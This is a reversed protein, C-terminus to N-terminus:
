IKSVKWAGGSVGTESEPFKVLEFIEKDTVTIIVTAQINGGSQISLEKALKPTVRIRAGDKAPGQIYRLTIPSSIHDIIAMSSIINIKDFIGTSVGDEDVDTIQHIIPENSRVGGADGSADNRSGRTSDISINENGGVSYLQSDLVDDLQKQIEDIKENDSGTEFGRVM